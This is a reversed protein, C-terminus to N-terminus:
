RPLQGPDEALIEGTETSITLIVVQIDAPVSNGSEDRTFYNPEEDERRYRFADVRIQREGRQFVRMEPDMNYGLEHLQPILDRLAKIQNLALPLARQIEEDEIALNVGSRDIMLDHFFQIKYVDSLSRDFGTPLDIHAGQWDTHFSFYREDYNLIFYELSRTLVKIEPHLSEVREAFKQNLFTLAKGSFLDLEPRTQLLLLNSVATNGRDAVYRRAEAETIRVGNDELPGRTNVIKRLQRDVHNRNAEYPTMLGDRFDRDFQLPDLLPPAMLEL